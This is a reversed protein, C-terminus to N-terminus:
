IKHKNWINNISSIDKKNLNKIFIICDDNKSFAANTWNTSGLILTQEDILCWKHHLLKGQNGEIIPIHHSRLYDIANKSAGRASYYDIAVEVGIGRKKAEILTQLIKECTFTFMSIKISEKALKLEQIVRSLAGKHKQPLSWVEINKGGLNMKHYPRASQQLFYSLEESYCGIVLNDHLRLSTETLNASGLFVLKDDIILVKKHMIGPSTLPFVNAIDIKEKLRKSGHV